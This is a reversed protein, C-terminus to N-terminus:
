LDDVASRFAAPDVAPFRYLEPAIQEFLRRLEDVRVLGAAILAEVDELDQRHGRELKALAQAYPDFHRVSLLDHRAVLPSRERWGPPLPVFHGPHVLEINLRLDIKLQPLARLISEQEPDFWLDADVTTARWGEVVATTGGVLYCVGEDRAVRGLARLLADIRAADAPERM